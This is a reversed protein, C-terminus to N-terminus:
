PNLTRRLLPYAKEGNWRHTGDFFDVQLRDEAGLAQYARRMRALAPPIWDKVMLSDRTGIEWLCPRPAILSAIEPVDGYELLGPIVQAGCSYRQGIREQMLNLAGSPVAVRIRPELASSLMTMRGGYSLGVCGLREADVNERRALLEFAWLADRLNESMLTKGLLQMRVFSVACVDQGQYAESSDLRRGFPTFCPVAVVYGQRVLRLGYDYNFRAINEKLEPTSDVGAVPDHGFPGHGHLALIGPRPGAYAGGRPTLLYLPLAPHGAAELVLSERRHDDFDAVSERTTTWQPPPQHPGLLSRLKASFERQWSRCDEASGGHFQMKLPASAALNRIRDHVGPVQKSDAAALAAPSAAMCAALTKIWSRRSLNTNTM